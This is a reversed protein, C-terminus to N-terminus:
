TLYVPKILQFVSILPKWRCGWLSPPFSLSSPHFLVATVSHALINWQPMVFHGPALAPMLTGCAVFTLEPLFYSRLGTPLWCLNCNGLFLTNNQHITKLWEPISLYSALMRGAWAERCDTLECHDSDTSVVFSVFICLNWICMLAYPLRWQSVDCWGM